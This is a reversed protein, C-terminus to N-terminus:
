GIEQFYHPFPCNRYDITISGQWHDVSESRTIDSDALPQPHDHARRASNSTRARPLDAMVGAPVRM